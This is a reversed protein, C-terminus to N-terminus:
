QTKVLEFLIKNVAAEALNNKIQNEYDRLEITDSINNYIFSETIKFKSKYEANESVQVNLTIENKFQTADGTADKATIIKESNSSIKLSFSKEKVIKPNIYRNLIQKIKLNVQRDGILTLESISFAYDLRNKLSYLAEYGCSSLFLFLLLTFIKEKM